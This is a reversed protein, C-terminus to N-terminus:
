STLYDLASSLIIAKDAKALIRITLVDKTENVAIAEHILKRNDLPDLYVEDGDDIKNLLPM